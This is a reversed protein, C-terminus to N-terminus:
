SGCGGATPMGGDAYQQAFGNSPEWGDRFSRTLEADFGFFETRDRDWGMSDREQVITATVTSPVNGLFYPASACLLQDVPLGFEEGLKAEPGQQGYRVFDVGYESRLVDEFLEPRPSDTALFIKGDPVGWQRQASKIQMAVAETSPYCMDMTINWGFCKKGWGTHCFDHLRDAGRRIHVALYDGSGFLASRIRAAEEYARGVYRVHGRTYRMADDWLFGDMMMGIAVPADFVLVQSQSLYGSKVDGYQKRWWGSGYGAEFRSFFGDRNADDHVWRLESQQQMFHPFTGKSVRTFSVNHHEFFRLQPASNGVARALLTPLEIAEGERLWERLEIVGFASKMMTLNLFHSTPLWRETFPSVRTLRRGFRIYFGPLILTRCLVESLALAHLLSALVNNFQGCSHYAQRTKARMDDHFCGEEFPNILLLMSAKREATCGAAPALDSPLPPPRWSSPAGCASEGGDSAEEDIMQESAAEDDAEAEAEPLAGTAALRKQVRKLTTEYSKDHPRLELAAKAHRLAAPLEGLELLVQALGHHALPCAHDMALAARLAAAAAAPSGGNWRADALKASTLCFGEPTNPALALARSYATAATDFSSAADHADGLARFAVFAGTSNAENLALRAARHLLPIAPKIPARGAAYDDLALLGHELAPEHSLPDALM